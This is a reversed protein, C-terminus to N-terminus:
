ECAEAEKENEKPGRHVPQDQEKRSSGNAKIRQEARQKAKDSKGFRLKRGSDEQIEM